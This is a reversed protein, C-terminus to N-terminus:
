SDWKPSSQSSKSPIALLVAILVVVRLERERSLSWAEWTKSCGWRWALGMENELISSILQNV